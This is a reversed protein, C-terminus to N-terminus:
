RGDRRAADQAAQTWHQRYDGSARVTRVADEAIKLLEAIERDTQGQSLRRVVQRRTRPAMPVGPAVEPATTEDDHESSEEGDLAADEGEAPPDPRRWVGARRGPPLDSARRPLVTLGLRAMMGGVHARIAVSIEQEMSAPAGMAQLHAVLDRLGEVAEVEIRGGFRERDVSRQFVYVPGPVPEKRKTVVVVVM